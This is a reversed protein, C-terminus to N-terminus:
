SKDNSMGRKNEERVFNFAKELSDDGRFIPYGFGEETYRDMDMDAGRRLQDAKFMAEKRDLILQRAVMANTEEILNLASSSSVDIGRGAIEVQQSAKVQEGEMVLAKSNIEFRDLLELAQLRKAEANARAAKQQARAAKREGEMAIITGGVGAVAAGTAM